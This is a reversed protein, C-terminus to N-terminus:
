LSQTGPQLAQATIWNWYKLLDSQTVIYSGTTYQGSCAWGKAFLNIRQNWRISSIHRLLFMGDVYLSQSGPQLAGATMWNWYKLIDPKTVIYSGMIYQGSCPWGKAFLYM